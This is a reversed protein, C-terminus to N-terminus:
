GERAKLLCWVELGNGESFTSFVYNSTQRDALLLIINLQQCGVFGHVTHEEGFFARPPPWFTIWLVTRWFM